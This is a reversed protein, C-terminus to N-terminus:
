FNTILMNIAFTILLASLYHYTIEFTLLIISLPLFKGGGPWVCSDSRPRHLFTEQATSCDCLIPYLALVSISCFLYYYSVPSRKAPNVVAHRHQEPRHGEGEGIHQTGAVVHLKRHEKGDEGHEEASYAEAIKQAYLVAQSGDTDPNGHDDVPNHADRAKHESVEVAIPLCQHVFQFLIFLAAAPQVKKTASNSLYLYSLFPM